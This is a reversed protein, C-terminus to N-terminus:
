TEEQRAAAMRRDHDGVVNAGASKAKSRLRPKSALRYKKTWEPPESGKLAKRILTQNGAEFILPLLWQSTVGCWDAFRLELVIRGRRPPTIRPKSSTEILRLVWDADTGPHRHWRGQDRKMVYARLDGLLDARKLLRFYRYAEIRLAGYSTEEPRQTPTRIERSVAVSLSKRLRLSWGDFDNLAPREARKTM